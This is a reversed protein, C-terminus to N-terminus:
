QRQLRIHNPCSTTWTKHGKLFPQKPLSGCAPGLDRVLKIKIRGEMRGMRRNKEMVAVAYTFEKKQAFLCDGISDKGSMPSGVLVELFTRQCKKGESEM